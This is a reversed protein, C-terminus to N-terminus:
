RKIFFLIMELVQMTAWYFVIGGVFAVAFYRVKNPVILLTDVSVDIKSYRGFYFLLYMTTIGLIGKAVVGFYKYAVFAVLLTLIFLGILSAVLLYRKVQNNNKM